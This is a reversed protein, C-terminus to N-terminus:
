RRALWLAAAYVLWAGSLLLVARTDSPDVASTAVVLLTALTGFIGVGQTTLHRSPPGSTRAWWSRHQRKAHPTEPPTSESDPTTM